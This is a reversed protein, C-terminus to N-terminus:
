FRRRKAPIWSRKPSRWRNKARTIRPKCYEKAVTPLSPILLMLPQYIELRLGLFSGVMLRFLDIDGAIVAAHVASNGEYDRLKLDAGWRVLMQAPISNKEKIAWHLPTMLLLDRANIDAEQCYLWDLALTQGSLLSLCMFSYTLEIPLCLVTGFRAAWHLPTLKNGDQEPVGTLLIGILFFLLTVLAKVSAGHDVLMQLCPISGSRAAWHIPMEGMLNRDYFSVKRDLFVKVM